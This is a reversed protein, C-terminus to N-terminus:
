TIISLVQNIRKEIIKIDDTSSPYRAEITGHETIRIWAHNDSLNHVYGKECAHKYLDEVSTYAEPTPNPEVITYVNLRQAHSDDDEGSIPKLLDDLHYILKNYSEIAHEWSKMGIHIHLGAISCAAVLKDYSWKQALDRYRESPFIEPSVKFPALAKYVISSSCVREAIIQSFDMMSQIDNLAEKVTKRPPTRSEMVSLYLEETWGDDLLSEVKYQRAVKQAYATQLAQLFIDAKHVMQTDDAIFGELETGIHLPKTFILRAKFDEFSPVGAQYLM